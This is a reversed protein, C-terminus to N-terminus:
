ALIGLPWLIWWRIVHYKILLGSAAVTAISIGLWLLNFETSFFLAIVVIGSLGDAVALAMLFTRAAPLLGRGFIALIALAFAIDTAVPM